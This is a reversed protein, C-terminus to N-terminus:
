WFCRRAIPVVCQHAMLLIVAGLAFSFALVFCLGRAVRETM